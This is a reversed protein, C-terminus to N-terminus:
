YLCINPSFTRMNNYKSLVLEGEDEGNLTLDVVLIEEEEVGVDELAVYTSARKNYRASKRETIVLGDGVEEVIEEDVDGALEVHTRV